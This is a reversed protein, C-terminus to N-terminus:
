SSRGALVVIANSTPAWARSGLEQEDLAVPVVVEVIGDLQERDEPAVGEPKFM